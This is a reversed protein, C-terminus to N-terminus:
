DQTANEEQVRTQMNKNSLGSRPAAPELSTEVMPKGLTEFPLFLSMGAALMSVGCYISLTLYMSKRLMVQAVFPTLLCGLRGMGSSTGMAMARTETPFVEPTYIYAVQFGGTIFARAIFIFITLGIRGICAYLPLLCLAYVFFSVALSKKRGIYEVGILAIVVGPFEALTTWLLDKYDVPTLYKCELNCTPDSKAGEIMGCKNGEQLLETTLLIIGYYTFSIAFWIFWLLLTTTRYEPTFLNRIRGRSNEQKAILRGSLMAKGNDKAIRSLTAMAKEDKGRLVDFRASEPLWLCLLLFIMVPITSLGVQWRWGLTPMVLLALLVEFVAGIAFFVAIFVLCFGRSKIPLFESYLTVAQPVAGLGCGVLGRLLLIWSYVPAFSSLLGFYFTWAMSVVLGMRRGYKDCFAGWLVSSFGMGIFVVSTIFAVEFSALRWECHMQPGLISLLMTEMSDAIWSMGTVISLKWQFKGIGFAEVADDVTFTETFDSDSM